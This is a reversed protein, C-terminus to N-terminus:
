DIRREALDLWHAVEAATHHRISWDVQRVSIAAWHARLAEVPFAALQEDVREAVGHESPAHDLHFRLTVLDFARDGRGAGDWDVIGTIRDGAALMNGTHFDCHVADDGPMTLPVSAGVEAAWAELRATRTDFTRLPEHLSFGVGDELLYFRVQPVDPADRLRGAQLEGLRLLDDLLAHTIVAPPTGPLLEQVLLLDGDVDVTLEVGPAPYGAARLRTTVTTMPALQAETFAPRWTLVGRRGDPRRVYAAGVEGGQPHGDVTLRVGTREEIATVMTDADLRRARAWTVPESAWAAM